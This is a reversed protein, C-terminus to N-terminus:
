CRKRKYSNHSLINKKILNLHSHLLKNQLPGYQRRKGKDENADNYFKGATLKFKGFEKGPHKSYM